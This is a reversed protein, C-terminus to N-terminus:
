NQFSKRTQLHPLIGDNSFSRGREKGGPSITRLPGYVSFGFAPPAGALGGAGAGAGRTQTQAQPSKPVNSALTSFETTSIRATGTGSMSDKGSLTHSGIREIQDPFISISKRHKETVRAHEDWETHNYAPPVEQIRRLIRKNELIIKQMAVKKRSKTIERKSTSHVVTIEGIENDITKTQIISAIRGLLLKNGYEIM